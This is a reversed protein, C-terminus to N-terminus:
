RSGKFTGLGRVEADTHHLELPLSLTQGPAVVVGPLPSLAESAGGDSAETNDAAGRRRRRRPPRRPAPPLAQRVGLSVAGEVDRPVDVSFEFSLPQSQHVPHRHHTPTYTHPRPPLACLHTTHPCVTFSPPAM